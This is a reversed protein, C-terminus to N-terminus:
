DLFISLAISCVDFEDLGQVELFLQDTGEPITGSLLTTTDISSDGFLVIDGTNQVDDVTAEIIFVGSCAIDDGSSGTNDYLPPSSILFNIEGTYGDVKFPVLPFNIINPGGTLYTFYLIKDSEGEIAEIIEDHVTSAKEVPIFAFVGAILVTATLITPILFKNM